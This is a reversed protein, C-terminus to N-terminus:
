EEYYFDDIDLGEDIKKLSEIKEDVRNKMFDFLEKEDYSCIGVYLVGIL